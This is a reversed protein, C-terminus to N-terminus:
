NGGIGGIEDGCFRLVLECAILPRDLLARIMDGFEDDDGSFRDFELSLNIGVCSFWYSSLLSVILSKPPPPLLLSMPRFVSIRVLEIAVSRILAFSCKSLIFLPKAM